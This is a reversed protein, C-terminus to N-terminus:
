IDVEFAAFHFGDQEVVRGDLAQVHRDVHIGRAAHFLLVPRLLLATAKEVPKAAAIGLDERVIDLRLHLPHELIERGLVAVALQADGVPRAASRPAGYLNDALELALVDPTVLEGSGPLQSGPCHERRRQLVIDVVQFPFHRFAGPAPTGHDNGVTLQVVGVVDLLEAGVQRLLDHRALARAGIEHEDSDAILHVLLLELVDRVALVLPM